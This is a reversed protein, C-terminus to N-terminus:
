LIWWTALGLYIGTAGVDAFMLAVPGGAIKPDLKFRHVVVPVIVGMTASFIMSCFISVAVVFLPLADRHLIFAILEVALAASLGLLIATKWEKVVRSFVEKWNIKHEHLFVLSMTMAQMSISESLTLVLPIFMALIIAEQLVVQFYGAIAACMFGAVLNGLLWPMRLSFGRMTGAAQSAEISIGILQFIDNYLGKKKELSHNAKGRFNEPRVQMEVVGLLRSDDDVVPIAVLKYQNLLEIAEKVSGKKNISIPDRSMVEVVPVNSKSVVLHHSSVVGVLVGNDNVVPSYRLNVVAPYERLYEIADQVSFTDKLSIFDDSLSDEIPKELDMQNLDQHVDIRM